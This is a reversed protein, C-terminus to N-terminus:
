REEMEVVLLKEDMVENDGEEVMMVRLQKDPSHYTTHFPGILESIVRVQETWYDKIHCITFGNDHPNNRRKNDQILKGYKRQNRRRCARRM